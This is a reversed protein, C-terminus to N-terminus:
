ATATAAAAERAQKLRELVTEFGKRGIAANDRFRTLCFDEIYSSFRNLASGAMIKAEQRFVTTNNDTDHPVYTVIENIRLMHCMSLNETKMTLKKTKPDLESIERVYSTTSGGLFKLVMAPANQKCTLLRETHLIGTEPDVHRDLIDVAIVHPCQENPYKRWNAATVHDWDHDFIHTAEFFKM